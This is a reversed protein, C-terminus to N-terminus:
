GAPQPVPELVQAPVISRAIDDTAGTATLYGLGVLILALAFWFLPRQQRRWLLAGALVILPTGLIVAGAIKAPIM